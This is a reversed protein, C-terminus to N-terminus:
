YHFKKIEKIENCYPSKSKFRIAVKDGKKLAKCSEYVSECLFFRIVKNNTLEITIESKIFHLKLNLIEGVTYWYKDLTLEKM